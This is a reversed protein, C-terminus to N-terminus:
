GVCQAMISFTVKELERSITVQPRNEAIAARNETPDNRKWPVKPSACSPFLLPSILAPCRNRRSVHELGSSPREVEPWRPGTWRLSHHKGVQGWEGPCQWSTWIDESGGPPPSGASAPGDTDDAPDVWSSVRQLSPATSVLHREVVKFKNAVKQLVLWLTAKEMGALTSILYTLLTFGRRSARRCYRNPTGDLPQPYCPLAWPFRLTAVDERLRPLKWCLLSHPSIGSTCGFICFIWSTEGMQFFDRYQDPCCPSVLFIFSPLFLACCLTTLPLCTKNKEMKNFFTIYCKNIDWISLVLQKGIHVLHM